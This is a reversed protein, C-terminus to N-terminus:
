SGQHRVSHAWKKGLKALYQPHAIWDYAGALKAAFLRNDDCSNVPLRKLFFKDNKDDARGITTCVGDSYGAQSLEDRFMQRFASDAEPFAFPYAFSEIAHGLEQEITQKSTTVERRIAPQALNYLQPHTMTHSGFSIGQKALERVESWTLCQKGKYSQRSEAIYATPLYMTATLGYQNLVPVANTYFDLFGDDFTIVVSKSLDDEAKNTVRNAAQAPTISEYGHERLYAMHAAFISPTTITRYYPHAANESDSSIGHYMLIPISNRGGFGLRQMPSAVYLTALRDLRFDM